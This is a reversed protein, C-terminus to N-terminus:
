VADGALLLGALVPAADDADDLHRRDRRRLLRDLRQPLRSGLQRRGQLLGRRRGADVLVAPRLCGPRHEPREADADALTTDTPWSYTFSFVDSATGDHSESDIPTVGWYYTGDSLRTPLAYASAQTTVPFGNVVSSLGPDTAVTVRYKEAGPIATWNLLLPDPYTISAGDAPTTPDAKDSWNMVMSRTASWAGGGNAATMARVRWYYTKNQLLDTLAARTNKTDISYLAPSFTNTAAIQFQYHDAGSVASWNFVPVSDVSAGSGPSLPNPAALTAYTPAVVVLLAVM